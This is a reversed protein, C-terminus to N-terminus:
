LVIDLYCLNRLLCSALTLIFAVFVYSYMPFECFFTLLLFSFVALILMPHVPLFYYSATLLYCCAELSFLFFLVLLFIAPFIVFALFCHFFTVTSSNSLTQLCFCVFMFVLSIPPLMNHSIDRLSHNKKTGMNDCYFSIFVTGGTADIYWRKKKLETEKAEKLSSYNAKSLILMELVAVNNSCCFWKV